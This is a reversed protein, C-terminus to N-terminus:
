DRGQCRRGTGILSVTADGNNSVFVTGTAGDVAVNTPWGGTGVVRRRQCGTQVNANCSTSVFATVTSDGVNGVYVGHSIPDFDIGYPLDGVKAVPWSIKCGALVAANCKETDVMSVTGDVRNAVYLTHDASDMAMFRPQQGVPAFARVACGTVVAANCTTTDLVQVTGATRDPVYLTHRAADLAVGAPAQGAPVTTVSSACGSRNVVNCSAGDIISVTGQDVEAVYVTHLVPDVTLAYAGGPLSIRTPTMGCGAHNHANCAATDFFSVTDDYYDAVYATHTGPDIGVWKPFAGADLRITPWHGQCGAPRNASCAAADIVSVSDSSSNTVYVTQTSEDLTLGSPAFETTTTPAHRDCGNHVQANCRFGNLVTVTNEDQSTYYVTHTKPDVIAGGADFDGKMVFPDTRCGDSRTSNCRNEDIVAVSSDEQSVAYLTRTSPDSTLSMPNAGMKATPATSGCGSTRHADCRPTYVMAVHGLNGDGYVAVYLTHTPLDVRVDVPSGGLPITAREQCGNVKHANCTTTDFLSVDNDLGNAVYVTGTTQDVTLAQPIGGAQVTGVARCGVSRHGNCLSTDILSLTHGPVDGGSNGVYLTSTATDLALGTPFTGVPVRPVEACARFDHVNCHVADLVGVFNDGASSFYVTRTSQDVLIGIDNTGLPLTRVTQGCGADASASCHSTDILSIGDVTAVYLTGTRPDLAAGTPNTGVKVRPAAPKSHRATAKAIAEATAGAVEPRGATAEGGSTMNPGAWTPQAFGLMVATVISLSLLAVTSRKSM